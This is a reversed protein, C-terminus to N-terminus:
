KSLIVLENEHAGIEITELFICGTSPFISETNLAIPNRIKMLTLANM